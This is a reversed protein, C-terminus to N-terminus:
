HQHFITCKWHDPKSVDCHREPPDDPAFESEAPGIHLRSMFRLLMNDNDEKNKKRIARNLDFRKKEYKWWVKEADNEYPGEVGRKFHPTKPSPLSMVPMDSKLALDPPKRPVSVRQLFKMDDGGKWKKKPLPPPICVDSGSMRKLKSSKIFNYSKKPREAMEDISSKGCGM